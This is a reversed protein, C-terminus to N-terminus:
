TGLLIKIGTLIGVKVIDTTAGSGASELIRKISEFGSRLRSPHERPVELGRQLRDIEANLAERQEVTLILENIHKLIQSLLESAEDPRIGSNLNRDGGQITAQGSLEGMVGAFNKITNVKVFVKQSHALTKEESSFSLGVGTIGAKELKLSWDLITNKVADLIQAFAARDIHLQVLIREQMQGGWSVLMSGLPVAFMGESDSNGRHLLDSIESVASRVPQTRTVSDTLSSPTLPVWGRMSNLGHLQGQVTRYRPLKDKEDYGLLECDIWAQFEPLDLKAAVLKAKRLLDETAVRPNLSEAQLQEVLSPKRRNIAM